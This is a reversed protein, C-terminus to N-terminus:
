NMLKAYVYAVGDKKSLEIIEDKNGLMVFGYINLGHEEVNNALYEYDAECEMMKIFEKQEGMYRLMNVVHETMVEESVHEDEEGMTEATDYITLYPYQEYNHPMMSYCRCYSFGMTEDDFFSGDMNKQAIACWEPVAQIEGTECWEVFDSYSLVEELTIYAAYYETEDLAQLEEFAEEPEGAPGVKGAYGDVGPIAGVFANGEPKKLVNSDYLLLKGREIKGAVNTFVGTYSTTQMIDIDYEGYGNENVSVEDRFSEPMYLETYVAMDLSMRNTECAEHTGVIEGPNYYLLDVAKPLAFIVLLVAVLVVVGVVVGMKIFAKRISAKIMKAFQVQEAEDSFVSDTANDEISNEVLGDDTLDELGPIEGEDFLYESIAEQREIDKEVQERQEKDLKGCKYLDILERYTM